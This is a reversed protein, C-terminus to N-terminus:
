YLDDREHSVSASMIYEDGILVYDIRIFVVRTLVCGISLNISDDRSLIIPSFDDLSVIIAGLYKAIKKIFQKINGINNSRHFVVCEVEEGFCDFDDIKSICTNINEVAQKLIANPFKM